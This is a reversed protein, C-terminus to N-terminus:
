NFIDDMAQGAQLKANKDADKRAQEMRAVDEFAEAETKGERISLIFRRTNVLYGLDKEKMVRKFIALFTDKHVNGGIDLSFRASDGTSVTAFDKGSAAEIALITERDMKGIPIPNAAEKVERKESLAKAIGLAMEKNMGDRINAFYGRAIVVGELGNARSFRSCLHGFKDEYEIGNRSVQFASIDSTSIKEIPMGHAAEIQKIIGADIFDLPIIGLKGEDARKAMELAESNSKGDRMSALYIRSQSIKTFKYYTAIKNFLSSSTIEYDKGSVIIPVPVANNISIKEVKNGFAKEIQLIADKDILDLPVQEAAKKATEIAEERGMGDRVLEFYLGAQARTMIKRSYFRQTMANLNDRYRKGGMEINFIATDQISIDRIKKGTAKEILLIAEKSIDEPMLPKGGMKKTEEVAREFPVNNRIFLMFVRADVTSDFKLSNRVRALFSNAKDSYWKGEVRIKFSLDKDLDYDKFECGMSVEMLRIYNRNLKELPMRRISSNAERLAEDEKKGALILSLYLRTDYDYNFKFAKGARILFDSFCDIHDKGNIKVRFQERSTTPIDNFPLKFHDEIQKLVDISVLEVPIRKPLKSVIELAEDLSKGDRIERVCHKADTRTQLNAYVCLRRLVYEISDSIKKGGIEIDFKARDQVEWDEVKKGCAAEISRIIEPTLNYVPIGTKVGKLAVKAREQTHKDKEGPCLVLNVAENLSKGNEIYSLVNRADVNSAISKELCLRNLVSRFTDTYTKGDINVTLQKANTVHVMGVKTKLCEGIQLVVEQSLAHIPIHKHEKGTLNRVEELAEQNSKGGRLLALYARSQSETIEHERSIRRVISRFTSEYNTGGIMLKLCEQNDVSIEEIRKGFKAEIQRAVDANFKGLPLENHTRKKAIGETGLDASEFRASPSAPNVNKENKNIEKKLDM